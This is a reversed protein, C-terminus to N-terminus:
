RKLQAAHWPVGPFTLEFSPNAAANANEVEPRRLCAHFKSSKSSRSLTCTLTCSLAGVACPKAQMQSRVSVCLRRASRRLVPLGSPAPASGGHAHVMRAPVSPSQRVRLHPSSTGVTTRWPSVANRFRVTGPVALAVVLSVGVKGNRSVRHPCVSRRSSVSNFQM